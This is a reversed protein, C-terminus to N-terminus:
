PIGVVYLWKEADYDGSRGSLSLAQEFSLLSVSQSAGSPIHM